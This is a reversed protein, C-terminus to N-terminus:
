LGDAPFAIRRGPNYSSDVLKRAGLPRDLTLKVVEAPNNQCTQRGKLPKVGYAVAVGASSIRLDYRRLRQGAPLGSSCEDEYVLLHVSRTTATPRPFAPNLYVTSNNLTGLKRRIRCDGSYAFTWGHSSFTDHSRRIELSEYTVAVHGPRVKATPRMIRVHGKSNRVVRWGKLTKLRGVLDDRFAAQTPAPLKTALQGKTLDHIRVPFYACTYTAGTTAAQAAPVGCPSALLVLGLAATTSRQPM